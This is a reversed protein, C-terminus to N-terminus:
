GLRRHEWGRQLNPQRRTRLLHPAPGSRASKAIRRTLQERPLALKTKPLTQSRRRYRDVSSRNADVLVMSSAEIQTSNLLQAMLIWEPLLGKGASPVVAFNVKTSFQGASAGM